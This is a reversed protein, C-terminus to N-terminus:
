INLIEELYKKVELQREFSNELEISIYEPLYQRYQGIYDIENLENLEHTDYQKGGPFDTDTRPQDKVASVHCCGIPYKTIRDLMADNYKISFDNWDNNNLRVNNEWHSFDICLGAYKKLEDKTPVMILNEVFIQSAYKGCIQSHPHKQNKPHVNFVQTKFNDVIFKIETQDMDEERLHVHPIELDEIQELLSYLEKRQEIELFTTLGLLIEHKM